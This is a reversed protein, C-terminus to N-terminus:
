VLKNFLGYFFLGLPLTLLYLPSLTLFFLGIWFGFCIPCTVLRVIFYDHYYERLFETYTGPYGDKTLIQYDAIHFFRTLRFLTLYEVFANTKFWIVLFYSILLSFGLINVLIKPNEWM